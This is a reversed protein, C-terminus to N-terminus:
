QIHLAGPDHGMAHKEWVQMVCAVECSHYPRSHVGYSDDDVVLELWVYVFM